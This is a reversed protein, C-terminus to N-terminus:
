LFVSFCERQRIRSCEPNYNKLIHHKLRKFSYPYFLIKVPKFFQGLRLLMGIFTFVVTTRGEEVKVVVDVTDTVDAGGGSRAPVRASSEGVAQAGIRCDDTVPTARWRGPVVDRMCQGPSMRLARM